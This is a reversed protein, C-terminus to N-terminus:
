SYYDAASRRSRQSQPRTRRSDEVAVQIGCAWQCLWDSALQEPRWHWLALTQLSVAAVATGSATGAALHCHCVTTSESGNAIHWHTSHHRDPLSIALALALHILGLAKSKM